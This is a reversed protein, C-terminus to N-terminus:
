EEIKNLYIDSKSYRGAFLQKGKQTYQKIFDGKHLTYM